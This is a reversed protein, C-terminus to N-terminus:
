DRKINTYREMYKGVVVDLTSNNGRNLDFFGQILDLNVKRDQIYPIVNINNLVLEYNWTELKKLIM